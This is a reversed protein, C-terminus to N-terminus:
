SPGQAQWGVRIANPLSELWAGDGRACRHNTARVRLSSRGTRSPCHYAPHVRGHQAVFRKVTHLAADRRAGGVVARLYTDQTRELQRAGVAAAVPATRPALHVQDAPGNAMVGM